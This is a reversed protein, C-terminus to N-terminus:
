HSCGLFVVLSEGSSVFVVIKAYIEDFYYEIDKFDFRNKTIKDNTAPKLMTRLRNKTLMRHQNSINFYRAAGSHVLGLMAPNDHM